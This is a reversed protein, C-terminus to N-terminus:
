RGLSSTGVTHLCTDPSFMVTLEAYCGVVPPNPMALTLYKKRLSFFFLCNTLTCGNPYNEKQRIETKGVLDHAGPPLM